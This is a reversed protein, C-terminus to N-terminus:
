IVIPKTIQFETNLQRLLRSCACAFLLFLLAFSGSLESPHKGLMLM